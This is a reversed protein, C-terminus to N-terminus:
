EVDEAGSLETGVREAIQKLVEPQSYFGSQVRALIDAARKESLPPIGLLAKKAFQVEAASGADKALATRAADSIEVKDAIASKVNQAHQTGGGTKTRATDAVSNTRYAEARENGLNVNRINM